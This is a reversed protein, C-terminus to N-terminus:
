EETASTVRAVNAIKVKRTSLSTVPTAQRERYVM